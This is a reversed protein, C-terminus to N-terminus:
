RAASEKEASALRTTEDYDEPYPTVPVIEFGEAGTLAIIHEAILATNGKSVNGVNYNEGPRSFYVVLMKGNEGSVAKDEETPNAKGCGVILLASVFVALCPFIRKM